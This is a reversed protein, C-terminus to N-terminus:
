EFYRAFAGDLSRDCCEVVEIKLGPGIAAHIAARAAVDDPSTMAVILTNETLQVPIMRYERCLGAPLLAAVEPEIEFEELNIQPYGFHM